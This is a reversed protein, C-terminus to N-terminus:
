DDQVDNRALKTRLDLVISRLEMIKTLPLSLSTFLCVSSVLIM